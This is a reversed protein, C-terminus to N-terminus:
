SVELQYEQAAFWLVPPFGQNEPKSRSRTCCEVFVFFIYCLKAAFDPDVRLVANVEGRVVTFRRGCRVCAITATWKMVRDAVVREFRFGLTM